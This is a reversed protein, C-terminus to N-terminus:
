KFAYTLMNRVSAEYVHRQKLLYFGYLSIKWPPECVYLQLPCNSYEKGYVFMYLTTWIHGPSIQTYVLRMECCSHSRSLTFGCGGGERRSPNSVTWDQRPTALTILSCFTGSLTSCRMAILNRTPSFTGDASIWWLSWCCYPSSQRRLLCEEGYQIGSPIIKHLARPKLGAPASSKERRCRGVLRRNLPYRPDKGPVLAVPAHLQGNM